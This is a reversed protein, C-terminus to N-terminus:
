IMMKPARHFRFYEGHLFERGTFAHVLARYSPPHLLPGDLYTAGGASGNPDGVGMVVVM